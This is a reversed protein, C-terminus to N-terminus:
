AINYGKFGIIFDLSNLFSEKEMEEKPLDITNFCSHSEFAYDERWTKKVQINMGDIMSRNGTVHELFCKQWEEDSSQIKEKLWDVKKLFAEDEDEDSIKLAKLLRENSVSQGQISLSLNKSDKTLLEKKFAETMGEAFGRVSRLYSHIMEASGKLPNSDLDLGMGNNLQTYKEANQPTQDLIYDICFAFDGIYPLLLPAVDKLMQEEPIDKREVLKLLDFFLPNVMEGTLLKDTRSINQEYILSFFKGIDKMLGIRKDNQDWSPLIQENLCLDRKLAESLSSIFQKKVGGLDIANPHDTLFISNPIGKQSVIELYKLPEKKLESLTVDMRGSDRIIRDSERFNSSNEPVVVRAANLMTHIYERNGQHAQTRASDRVIARIAGQRLLMELLELSGNRAALLICSERDSQSLIAGKNILEFLITYKTDLSDFYSTLVLHAIEDLETQLITRGNLIEQLANINKGYLAAAKVAKYLHGETLTKGDSLLMRITADKGSFAASHVAEGLQDQSLEKGGSLMEQIVSIHGCSAATCVFEGLQDNTLERGDSLLARITNVDDKYLATSIASLFDRVFIKKGDLLVKITDAQGKEAAHKVAAGLDSKGFESENLSDQELLREIADIHGLDAAFCVANHIDNFTDDLLEEVELLERIASECGSEAASKVADSLENGLLKRRDSLLLPIIEIHHNEVAIHVWKSVQEHNIPREDMFRNAYEKNGKAIEEELRNKQGEQGIKLLNKITEKDNSKIAECLVNEQENTLEKSHDFNIVIERGDLNKVPSTYSADLHNLSSTAIEIIQKKQLDCSHQAAEAPPSQFPPTVADNNQNIADNNNNIINENSVM